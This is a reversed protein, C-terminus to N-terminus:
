RCKRSSNRHTAASECGRHTKTPPTKSATPPTPAPTATKAGATNPACRSATFASAQREAVVKAIVAMVEDPASLVQHNTFRLVCLGFGELVQTRLTDYAQADPQAHQSGDLEIVLQAAASYFDAIYGALPKQRYFQVGHVQKRRLREWLQQEAPTMATRLARSHAKLTRNYPLM